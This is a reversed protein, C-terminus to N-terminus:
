KEERLIRDLNRLQNLSLEEFKLNRMKGILREQEIHELVEKTIPVLSSRRYEVGKETGERTFQSGLVKIIRTPTIRKIPAVRYRAIFASDSKIAVKDGEQLGDLWEQREM